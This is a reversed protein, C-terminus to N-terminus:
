EHRRAVKLFFPKFRVEARQARPLNVFPLIRDAVHIGAVAGAEVDGAFPSFVLARHRESWLRLRKGGINVSAVFIGGLLADDADLAEASLTQVNLPIERIWGIARLAAAAERAVTDSGEYVVRIELKGGAAHKDELDDIAGLVAPFLKLGVRFRQEEEQWLSQTWARTTVFGLCLVLAAVFGRRSVGAIPPM